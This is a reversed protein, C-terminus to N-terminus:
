LDHRFRQITTFLLDLVIDTSSDVLSGFMDDHRSDCETESRTTSITPVALVCPRPWSQVHHFAAFM